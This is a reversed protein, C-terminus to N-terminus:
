GFAALLARYNAPGLGPVLSLEIWAALEGDRDTRLPM